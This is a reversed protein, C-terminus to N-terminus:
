SKRSGEVENVVSGLIRVNANDLQKKMLGFSINKTVGKRAVLLAGDCLASIVTADATKSFAPTDIIVVDYHAKLSDIFEQAEKWSLLELPNPPKPGSTLIDLSEIASQKVAQEFTLRKIILSSSGTNNKLQFIEHIRPKRFNLDVLITKSGLQSFVVALNAAVFSKGEGEDPSVVSISKVVTGVGSLLLSSRVSRFSEVKANFPDNVV